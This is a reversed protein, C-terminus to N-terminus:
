SRNLFPPLSKESDRLLYQFVLACLIQHHPRVPSRDAKMTSAHCNYTMRGLSRDLDILIGISSEYISPVIFVRSSLSLRCCCLSECCDILTQVWCVKQQMRQSLRSSSCCILSSSLLVITYPLHTTSLVKSCELLVTHKVLKCVYCQKCKRAGIVNTCNFIQKRHKCTERIQTCLVTQM